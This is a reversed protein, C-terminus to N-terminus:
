RPQKGLRELAARADKAPRGDSCKALNELVERAEDSALHELAEVSRMTRVWLPPPEKPDLRQLLQEIRRHVELPPKGALATRLAPEALLSLAELEVGAKRRVEFDKSDLDDILRAIRKPDDFGKQAALRAGLFRASGPASALRWIALGARAADPSALDSWLAELQQETVPAKALPEGHLGTADWVVTTGTGGSALLKSDPSLTLSAFDNGEWRLIRREKFTLLEWQRVKYDRGLSALTKGDPSLALAKVEGAWGGLQAVQNGTAVEWLRISSDMSASFLTQGDPSFVLGNIRNYHGRISRVEKGTAPNWLRIVRDKGGSALLKGDLSFALAAITSTHGPCRALERGTAPDTLNVLKDEGAWALSKGDPAFAVALVNGQGDVRQLERGSAVDWLRVSKDASASALSKGGPAFAIANVTDQHGKLQRIEKGTAADYLGIQSGSAVALLKGDSSFAVASPRSKETEPLRLQFVAGAPLMMNAGQSVLTGSTEALATSAGPLILLAVLTHLPRYRWM